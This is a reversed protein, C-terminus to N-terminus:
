AASEHANSLLITRDEPSLGIFCGGIMNGEDTGADKAPHAWMCRFATVIRRNLGPIEIYLEITSGAALADKAFLEIRSGGQSIEVIRCPVLMEETKCCYGANYAASFREFKRKKMENKERISQISELIVTYGTQITHIPAKMKKKM